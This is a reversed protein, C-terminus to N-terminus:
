DLFQGLGLADRMLEVKVMRSPRQPDGLFQWLSVLVVGTLGEVLVVESDEGEMFAGDSVRGGGGEGLRVGAVEGVEEPLIDSPVDGSLLRPLDRVKLLLALLYGIGEEGM